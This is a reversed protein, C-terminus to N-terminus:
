LECIFPHKHRRVQIAKCLDRLSMERLPVTTPDMSMWAAIDNESLGNPLSTPGGINSLDRLVASREVVEADLPTCLFVGSKAAHSPVVFTQKSM